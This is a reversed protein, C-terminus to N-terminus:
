KEWLEWFPCQGGGGNLETQVRFLYNEKVKWGLRGCSSVMYRLNEIRAIDYGEGLVDFHRCNACVKIKVKRNEFIKKGSQSM